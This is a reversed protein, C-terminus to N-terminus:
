EKFQIKEVSLPTSILEFRPKYLGILQVFANVLGHAPVVTMEKIEVRIANIPASFSYDGSKYSKGVWSKKFKGDILLKFQSDELGIRKEDGFSNALLGNWEYFRYTRSLANINKTKDNFVIINAEKIENKKSFLEMLSEQKAWDFYFDKYTFLNLSLLVSLIVSLLILNGKLLYFVGVIVLAGGLPMLLQHRSTWEHFTPVHGLIWYPFCALIVALFGLSILYSSHKYRFFTKKDFLCLLCICVIITIFITFELNIKVTFLELIQSKISPILNGFSFQENYGAYLGYPKYFINKIIFYVFPLM